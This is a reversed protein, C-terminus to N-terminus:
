NKLGEIFRIIVSAGDKPQALLIIHPGALQKIQLQPLHRQLQAAAREPVLNDHSAQLYLCPGHFSSEPPPPLESLINLRKSIVKLNVSKIAKRFLRTAQAPVSGLCFFRLLPTTCFLNLLVGQPLHKVTDLLFPRPYRDFTAVFIVGILNEPSDALLQLGVPGSFSEALLIFPKDTPLHGRALNVHENFSMVRDAPYRVILPEISEPLCDIFPGFVEGTGDLGPLMVLPTTQKTM